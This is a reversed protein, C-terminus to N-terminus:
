RMDTKEDVNPNECNFIVKMNPDKNKLGMPAVLRKRASAPTLAVTSISKSVDELIVSPSTRLMAEEALIVKVRLIWKNIKLKKIIKLENVSNFYLTRIRTIVLKIIVM